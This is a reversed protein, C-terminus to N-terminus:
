RRDGKCEESCGAWFGLLKSLSNQYGCKCIIYYNWPCSPHHMDTAEIKRPLNEGCILCIPATNTM